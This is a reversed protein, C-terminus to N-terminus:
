RRQWFISIESYLISSLIWCQVCHLNGVCIIIINGKSNNGNVRFQTVKEGFMIENELITRQAHLTCTNTNDHKYPGAAKFHDVFSSKNYNQTHFQDLIILKEDVTHSSIAQHKLVLADTAM